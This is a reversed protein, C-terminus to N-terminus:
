FVKGFPTHQPTTSTHHPTTHHPNTKNLSVTVQPMNFTTMVNKMVEVPCPSGAM